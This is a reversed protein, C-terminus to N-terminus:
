FQGCRVNFIHKLLFFIHKINCGFTCLHVSMGKDTGCLHICAHLFFQFLLTTFFYKHKTHHVKAIRRLENLFFHKGSGMLCIKGGPGAM